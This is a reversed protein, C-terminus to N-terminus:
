TLREDSISEAAPQTLAQNRLTAQAIVAANLLAWPVWLMGSTLIHGALLSVCLLILNLLLVPAAASVQRLRSGALALVRWFTLGYLLAGALGYFLLMDFLDLEIFYKKLLLRVGGQGVGFLQLWAPYNDAVMMFNRQLYYDRSSLVIGAIGRQQYAFMLKDYIGVWQLLATLNLLLLLFVGAGVVALVLLTKRHSQYVAKPTLLLPVAIILLACGFLGTKTLLLGAILLSTISILPYCWRQVQWARLLLWSTLILLLASLENTSIFFGKIGLFKQAVEDMPQYATGGYGAVGLASNLLLLLYSGLVFWDVHRLFRQPYLRALASFYSLALLFAGTKLILQVDQLFFAHPKLLSVYFPGLCMLLMLALPWRLEARCLQWGRYVMGSLLVAKVFASFGYSSGLQHFLVGNLWDVLVVCSALWLLAKDLQPGGIQYFTRIQM